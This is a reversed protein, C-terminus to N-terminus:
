FSSELRISNSLEELTKFAGMSKIKKLFGEYFPLWYSAYCDHLSFVAIYNQKILDLAMKEWKEYPMNKKYLDYDDFLIPIKVLRNRLRPFSSKFSEKEDSEFDSINLQM